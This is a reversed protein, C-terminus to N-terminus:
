MGLASRFERRCEEAKEPFGYKEWARVAIDLTKRARERFREEALRKWAVGLMRILPCAMMAVEYDYREPDQVSVRNLLMVADTISRLQHQDMTAAAEAAFYTAVIIDDRIVIGNTLFFKHAQLIRSVARPLIEDRKDHELVKAALSTLATVTNTFSTAFTRPNLVRQADVDRFDFQAVAALILKVEAYHMEGAMTLVPSVSNTIVDLSLRRRIKAWEIDLLAAIDHLFDAIDLLSKEQTKGTTLHYYESYAVGLSQFVSNVTYIFLPVRINLLKAFYDQYISIVEELSERRERLSLVPSEAMATLLTIYNQLQMSGSLGMQRASHGIGGTNGEELAENVIKLARAIRVRWVDLEEKFGDYSTISYIKDFLASRDLVASIFQAAVRFGNEELFAALREGFEPISAIQTDVFLFARLISREDDNFELCDAAHKYAHSYDISSIDGTMHGVAARALQSFADDPLQEALETLREVPPPITRTMSLAMIGMRIAFLTADEGDLDISAACARDFEGRRAHELADSLSTRINARFSSWEDNSVGVDTEKELQEMLRAYTADRSLAERIPGLIENVADSFTTDIEYRIYADLIAGVIDRHINSVFGDAKPVPSADIEEAIIRLFTDMYDEARDVLVVITYGKESETVILKRDRFDLKMVQGSGVITSLTKAAEILAGLLLEGKTAETSRIHVAVGGESLVGILRIM